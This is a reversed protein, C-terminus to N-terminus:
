TPINQGSRQWPINGQLVENITLNAAVDEYHDLYLGLQIPLQNLSVNLEAATLSQTLLWGCV